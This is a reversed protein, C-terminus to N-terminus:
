RFPCVDAPVYTHSQAGHYDSGLPILIDPHETAYQIAAACGNYIKHTSQYANWFTVAMEVYLHAYQDNSFKEQLTNYATTADSEHNQVLHLLMIRYYAYAALRPYEAPDPIGPAPTGLTSYGENGLKIMTDTQRQSSWWDLKDNSIADQYSKIAEDFKGALTARDGDQIIQFRFESPEYKISELVFNAGNWALIKTELRWPPNIIYGGIAPVGGTMLVEFERDNNLDKIEVNILGYMQEGYKPESNIVQFKSSNWELIYISYCGNGSCGRHELIIEPVGDANLDKIAVIETDYGFYNIEPSYLVYQGHTCIYIYFVSIPELNIFLVEPTKDGTVDQSTILPKFGSSNIRNSLAKFSAGKNLFNLIEQTDFIPYNPNQKISFSLTPNEKPCEAKPAPTVTVITSVDFTPTFAPITPLPTISATPTAAPLVTRTATATPLPSPTSTTNDIIPAPTSQGCATLLLTITILIQWFTKHM